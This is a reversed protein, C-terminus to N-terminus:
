QPVQGDDDEVEHAELDDAGHGVLHAVWLTVNGAGHDHTACRDSKDVEEAAKANTGGNGGVLDVGVVAHDVGHQGHHAVAHDELDDADREEHGEKGVHGGPGKADVGHGGVGRLRVVHGGGKALEVGLGAHRIAGGDDM